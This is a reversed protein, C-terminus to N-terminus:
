RAVVLDIGRQEAVALVSQAKHTAWATLDRLGNKEAFVAMSAYAELEFQLQKELNGLAM